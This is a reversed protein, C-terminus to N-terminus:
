RDEECRTNGYPDTHCRIRQKDSDECRTNGYPDSRCELTYPKAKREGDEATAALARLWRSRREARRADYAAVDAPTATPPPPPLCAALSACLAIAKAHFRM